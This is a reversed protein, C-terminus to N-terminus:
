CFLFDHTILYFTKFLSSQINIPKMVAILFLKIHQLFAKNNTVETNRIEDGQVDARPEFPHFVLLITLKSFQKEVLAIYISIGFM